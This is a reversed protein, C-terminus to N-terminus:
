SVDGKKGLRNKGTRDGGVVGTLVPRGYKLVGMLSIGGRRVLVKTDPPVKLSEHNVQHGTTTNLRTLAM